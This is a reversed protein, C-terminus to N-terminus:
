FKSILVDDYPIDLKDLSSFFHGLTLIYEDSKVAIDERITSSVNSYFYHGSQATVHAIRRDKGQGEIFFAGSTLIPEDPFLFAHNARPAKRGTEEEIRAVEARLLERGIRIKGSAAVAFFYEGATLTDCGEHTLTNMVTVDGDRAFFKRYEQQLMPWEKNPYGRHPANDKLATMLSDSPVFAVVGEAFDTHIPAYSHLFDMYNDYGEIVYDPPPAYLDARVEIGFETAIPAVADTNGIDIAHLYNSVKVAYESTQEAFPMSQWSSWIMFRMQQPTALRVYRTTQTGDEIGYTAKILIGRFGPLPGTAATDINVRRTEFIISSSTMLLGAARQVSELNPCIVRIAGFLQDLEEDGSSATVLPGTVFYGESEPLIGALRAQLEIDQAAILQTFEAGEIPANRDAAVCSATLLLTLVCTALRCVRVIDRNM